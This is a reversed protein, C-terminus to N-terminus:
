SVHHYSFTLNDILYPYPVTCVTCYLVLYCTKVTDSRLWRMLWQILFMADVNADVRADILWQMLWQVLWQM